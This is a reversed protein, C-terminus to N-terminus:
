LRLFLGFVLSMMILSLLAYFAPTTADGAAPDADNAEASPSAIPPEQAPATLAPTMLLTPRSPISNSMPM